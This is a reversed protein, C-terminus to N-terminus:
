SAPSLLSSPLSIAPLTVASTVPESSSASASSTATPSPTASSDAPAASASDAPTDVATLLGTVLGAVQTLLDTVVAQVDGVGNTVAQVLDDIAKDLAALADSVPDAARQGTVAASAPSGAAPAAASGAPTRGVAEAVARKAAEGAQRAQAATLQGKDAKAITNLLETVPTLVDASGRVKGAQARLADAAPQRLQPAVPHDERVPDAAMAASGAIGTLLAACLAGAALRRAPLSRM